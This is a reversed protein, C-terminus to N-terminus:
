IDEEHLSVLLVYDRKVTEPEFAGQTWRWLLLGPEYGFGLPRAILRALIPTQGSVALLGRFGPTEQLRALSDRIENDTQDPDSGAYFRFNRRVPCNLLLYSNAPENRRSDGLVSYCVSRGGVRGKLLLTRLHFRVQWSGPDYVISAIREYRGRNRRYQVYGGGAFLAAILLLCLVILFLTM